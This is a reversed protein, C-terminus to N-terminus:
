IVRFDAVGVSNNSRDLLDAKIRFDPSDITAAMADVSCLCALADLTNTFKM